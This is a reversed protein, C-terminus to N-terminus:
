DWSVVNVCTANRQIRGDQEQVTLTINYSLGVGQVHDCIDYKDFPSVIYSLRKLNPLTNLNITSRQLRDFAINVVSLCASGSQRRCAYTGQGAFKCSLSAEGSATCEQSIYYMGDHSICSLAGGVVVSIFLICIHNM